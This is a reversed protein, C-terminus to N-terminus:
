PAPSGCTGELKSLIQDFDRSLGNACCEDRETKARQGGRGLHGRRQHRVVLGCAAPLKGPRYVHGTSNSGIM